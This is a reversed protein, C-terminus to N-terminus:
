GRRLVAGSRAEQFAGDRVAFRGNVLVHRVGEALRNPAEVTGRETTHALDFVAIDAWAGERIVGRDALGIRSAPLSTVRRIGDEVTLEGRERVIRRLFWAAWTYAGHFIADGLPGGPSLTTADSAISCLPHRFFRAVADEPYMWILVLPRHVEDVEALLIDLVTDLVDGGGPTLEALSHGLVASDHVSAMTLRDPGPDALYHDLTSPYAKIRARAAPDHLREALASPGGSLAWVPLAISLNVEGFPRTHMDFGVDLGDCRADEVREFTQETMDPPSGAEPMAHSLQLRVGTTRATVIGEDLSPVAGEGTDRMCLAYLGGGAQVRQGLAELEEPRASISDPYSLGASLGFAGAALGEALLRDMARVDDPTAAQEPDSMVSMRLNGLPVLTAVNIAPSGREVRELYDETTRWDLPTVADYGFINAAFSPTDRMPGCGHGCNGVLETTVGQALASRARGDLLLTFDSHSHVDIFGPCVTLGTADIEDDASARSLDGIARIRGNRIGVDANIAPSGTGDVLSGARIVIDFATAGGTVANTEGGGMPEVGM